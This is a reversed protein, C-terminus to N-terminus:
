AFLVCASCGFCCKDFVGQLVGVCVLCGWFLNETRMLLNFISEFSVHQMYVM